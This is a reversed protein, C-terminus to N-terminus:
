RTRTGGRPPKKANKVAAKTAKEVNAAEQALREALLEAEERRFVTRRLATRAQKTAKAQKGRLSTPQGQSRPQSALHRLKWQSMTVCPLLWYPLEYEPGPSDGIFPPIVDEFGNLSKEPEFDGVESTVRHVKRVPWNDRVAKFLVNYEQSYPHESCGKRSWV